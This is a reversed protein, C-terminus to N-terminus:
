SEAMLVKRALEELKKANENLVSVIEDHTQKDVVKALNFTLENQAERLDSIKLNLVAMNFQLRAEDTDNAMTSTVVKESNPVQSIVKNLLTAQSVNLDDSLIDLTKDIIMKHLKSQWDINKLTDASELVFLPNQVSLSVVKAENNLRNIDESLINSDAPSKSDREVKEEENKSPKENTKPAKQFNRSPKKLKSLQNQADIESVRTLAAIQAAYDKALISDKIPALISIADVLARSRGEATSLDHKAIRRQIGFEVLPRSNELIERMAEAGQNEIFEAPDMREPITAAHLDCRSEGAEPTMQYDIFECAREAARQGAEDGDFLYIIKQSAYRSLLKIHRLTLATGLTAVVNKIGAEHMAIVDTYGEVVVAYGSKVIENKAFNLGFLVNSKHFIPTESSNLYKPEGQGIVRGGFAVCTGREDFIPFMVRNFFRDNVRGNRVTALNAKVIINEEFGKKKLHNVLTGSGQAYGLGWRQSIESGFGRKSLYKRASDAGQSKGRMLQTSFFEKAANVCEYIQNKEGKNLGKAGTDAIEIHARDALFHVAEVFSMNHLKMVYTFVSGGEGCGFCHWINDTPNIKCSPTKEKHFPCCCWFDRGKQKVQTTEAVLSVFDTADSVKQIDTESIM